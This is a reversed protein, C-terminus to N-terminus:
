DDEEEKPPVSWTWGDGIPYVKVDGRGRVKITTPETIEPEDSGELISTFTDKEPNYTTNGADKAYRMAEDFEFHPMEWGNWHQGTSWAKYSKNIWEAYVEIRKWGPNELKAKPVKIFDFKEVDLPSYRLRFGGYGFRYALVTGDAGVEDVVVASNTWEKLYKRPVIIDGHQFNRM